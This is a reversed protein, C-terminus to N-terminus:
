SVRPRKATFNNIQVSNLAFKKIEEDIDGSDIFCDHEGDKTKFRYTYTIGHAPFAAAVANSKMLFEPLLNANAEACMVIATKGANRATEVFNDLIVLDHIRNVHCPLRLEIKVCSNGRHALAICHLIRHLDDLYAESYVEICCILYCGDSHVEIYSRDDLAVCCQCDRMVPYNQLGVVKM